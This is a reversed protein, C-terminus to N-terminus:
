AAGSRAAFWPEAQEQYDAVLHRAVDLYHEPPHVPEPPDFNRPGFPYWQDGPIRAMRSRLRVRREGPVFHWATIEDAPVRDDPHPPRGDPGAAAIEVAFSGGASYFQVSLYDVREALRRRLHPLSGSFGVSRLFPVLVQQLARNMARRHENM